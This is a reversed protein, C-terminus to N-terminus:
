KNLGYSIVGKATQKKIFPEIKVDREIQWDALVGM